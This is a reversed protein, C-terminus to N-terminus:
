VSGALPMNAILNQPKMKLNAHADKALALHVPHGRVQELVGADDTLRMEFLAIIRDAEDNDLARGEYLKNLLGSAERDLGIHWRWDDDDIRPVPQVRIERGLLHGVWVELVRAFADSAPQTFRFDIVTDFRDSRSWYLGGSAEGLVDLELSRRPTGTEALLQGIGGGVGTEAKQAVVEADALMIRGASVDVSQERFFLEGARYRMPDSSGALCHALIVHVLQDLFLSPIGTDRERALKLYAGEITGAGFLIDRFKLMVRYNEAAAPDALEDLRDPAIQRFPDTMLEEFLAVERACSEELPRLEPRAFYARLFDQGPVLWGDDNVELLHYGSSLWPTIETM